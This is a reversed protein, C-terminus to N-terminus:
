SGYYDTITFELSGRIVDGVSAQVSGGTCVANRTLEYPGSIVLSRRYGIINQPNSFRSDAMFELSITGPQTEGTAVMVNAGIPSVASTMDTLRETPPTFSFATVVFKTSGFRAATGQATIGAM